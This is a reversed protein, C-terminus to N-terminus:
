DEKRTQAAVVRGAEEFLGRMWDHEPDRGHVPHWWLANVLPTPEFPLNVVRIGGASMILPVLAGQVLGIRNTGRVFHSLALFSEAIVEVRPEVGLQQVQRAASTYASRSQYTMVWPLEAMDAMTLQDGITSEEAVIACWDDRWLDIYPLDSIHGHPIVMGDVSRLRNTVDDVIAPSHLMFRFRVGPARRKALESVVRGITVFGYDSGYISFERTSETPEWSAQSEFVRRAAELATTTHEVLRLAFPTLEYTNGRRALIQDGFHTRLRGLSASLAPQSLHLREAARTVSQETLLADLAILLNLDLRSLMANSM